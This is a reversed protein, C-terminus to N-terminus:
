LLGRPAALRVHMGKQWLIHRGGGGVGLWCVDKGVM